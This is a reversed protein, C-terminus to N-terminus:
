EFNKEDITFSQGCGCTEKVNPNAFLFQSSLKDEVWEVESGIISILARPEIAIKIGDQEIIETGKSESAIDFIWSLNYSNGSCGKSRIGIKLIPPKGDDFQTQLERIRAVASPKSTVAGLAPMMSPSPWGQLTKASISGSAGHLISSIRASGKEHSSSFSLHENEDYSWSISDIPTRLSEIEKLISPKSKYLPNGGDMGKAGLISTIGSDTGVAINAGSPSICLSTGKLGSSHLPIRNICNGRGSSLSESCIARLDWQSLTSGTKNGELTWLTPHPSIPDWEVAVVGSDDGTKIRTVLSLSTSDMIAVYGNGEGIAIFNKSISVVTGIMSPDDGKFIGAHRGFSSHPIATQSELDVIYFHRKMGSVFASSCSPMWKVCKIPFAQLEIESGLLQPKMTSSIKSDFDEEESFSANSLSFLRITKDKDGGTLISAGTIPNWDISLTSTVCQTINGCYKINSINTSNKVPMKPSSMKANGKKKSLFAHICDLEGDEDDSLQSAGEFINTDAFTPKVWKPKPNIKEFQDRLRSQYKSGDISGSMMPNEDAELDEPRRLKKLQAQSNLNVSISDDDSDHWAVESSNPSKKIAAKSDLAATDRTQLHENSPRKDIVFSM